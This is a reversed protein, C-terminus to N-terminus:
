YIVHVMINNWNNIMELKLKEYLNYLSTYLSLTTCLRLIKRFVDIKLKQEFIDTKSLPFKGQVWVLPKLCNREDTQIEVTQTGLILGARADLKRFRNQGFECWVHLEILKPDVYIIHM